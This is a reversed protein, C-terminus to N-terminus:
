ANPAATGSGLLAYGARLSLVADHHLESVIDAAPKIEDVVGIGTGAWVVMGDADDESVAKQFARGDVGSPWGLTGRARDFADTRVTSTAHARLLAAKQSPSYRAEPSLLFRSGLAVGSAGLTLLAAVHSGTSLGGAALVAPRRM